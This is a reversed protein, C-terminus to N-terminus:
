KRVTFKRFISSNIKDKKYIIIAGTINWFVLSISTSFAAGMMEFKPIFILNLIVNLILAMLLVKQHIKQRGTMNLYTGVSGCFANFIQGSLIIILAMKAVQYEEGFFSLLTDSFIAVLIVLPTTIFFNLYASRKILQKLNDYEKKYYLTSIKPAILTNISSLVIGIIMSLKVAIGYHAVMKFGFYKELIIIDFSQMILLAFFSISMPISTKLIDKNTIGFTSKQKQNPLKNVVFITSSIALLFISIIFVNIALDIKNIYLLVVLLIILLGYRIIGRFLESTIIKNLGRLVQVNLISVAFPLIVIMLSDFVKQRDSTFYVDSLLTRLALYTLLLILFSFFLISIKKKYLQNLYSFKNLATLKGSFQLFSNDM